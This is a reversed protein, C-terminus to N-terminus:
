TGAKLDWRGFSRRISGRVRVTKDLPSEDVSTTQLTGRPMARGRGENYLPQAQACCAFPM